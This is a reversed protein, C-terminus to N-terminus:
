VDDCGAILVTYVVDKSVSTSNKKNKVNCAIILDRLRPLSFGIPNPRRRICSRDRVLPIHNSEVPRRVLSDTM